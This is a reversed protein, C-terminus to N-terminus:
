LCVGARRYRLAKGKDADFEISLAFRTAGHRPAWVHLKDEVVPIIFIESLNGGHHVFARKFKGQPLKHVGRSSTIVALNM